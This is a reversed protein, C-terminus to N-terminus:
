RFNNKMTQNFWSATLRRVDTLLSSWYDMSKTKIIDMSHSLEILYAMRKIQALAKKQYALRHNKTVNDFVYTENAMVLNDFIDLAANQLRDTLTFRWKKKFRNTNNTIKLTHSILRKSAIFVQMERQNRQENRVNGRRTM